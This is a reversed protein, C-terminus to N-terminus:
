ATDRNSEDAYLAQQATFLTYYRGKLKMLAEHGGDEVIRGNEMVCIRDSLRAFGIRHSILLATKGRCIERFDALMRMEELPDISATPEDLILFEPGGMYARSLIVRQWQGGSLEQGSADYEKGIVSDKGNPLYQLVEKLNGKEAARDIEAEDGMKEVCGFGVNERLTLSYRTYDQFGVGFYRFLEEREMEKIDRGNLRITGGYDELMGCMLKSLTSKGSGNYGLLSVIEGKRVTLSVGDVARGEQNPYAYTVHSLEMKEFRPPAAASTERREKEGDGTLLRERTMQASKEFLGYNRAPRIEHTTQTFEDYKEAYKINEALERTLVDIINSVSWMLSWMRNFLFTFEGLTLGGTYTLYLFYLTLGLGFLQQLTQPVGSILLANREFRYKGVSYTRYHGRWKDL